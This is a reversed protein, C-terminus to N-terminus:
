KKENPRIAKELSTGKFYEAAAEIKQDEPSLQKTPVNGGTTGSLMDISALKEKRELVKEEAATAEERRKVLALTKEYESLLKGDTAMDSSDKNGQTDTKKTQENNM